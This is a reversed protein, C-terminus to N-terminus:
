RLAIISPGRGIWDHLLMITCEISESHGMAHNDPKVAWGELTRDQASEDGVALSGDRRVPNNM